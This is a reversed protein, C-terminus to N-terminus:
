NGVHRMYELLSPLFQALAIAGYLAYVLNKLLGVDKALDATVTQLTAIRGDRLGQEYGEHEDDM